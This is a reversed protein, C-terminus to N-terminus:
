VASTTVAAAEAVPSRPVRQRWQWIVDRGFSETLLLMAMIIALHIVVGPTPDAVAATLVIGQIAAVPKRWYRPPLPRQMWRVMRGAAWFAYRAAGIALVWPGVSGAVYVSLVLILLADVEMDFRAGRASVTHTRRAVGGDVGDLILAVVSLGVMAAVSAPGVLADAVLATVGGVLTARTLTVWNAAGLTRRGSRTFGQSLAATTVLGCALGALWGAAGLGITAALGSLVVLQGILGIVPGTHVARLM